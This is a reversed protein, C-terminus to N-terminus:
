KNNDILVKVTVILQGLHRMTHEASHVYLGIVTSALKGRGVDRYHTLISDDTGSLQAVAFEVQRNFNDVLEVTTYIKTTPKGESRLYSLQEENLAEGRAYTFLRDLVGTLHQLHFGPSAMDAVKYWLKDDPFNGMLDNLENRAQLLAHAVPQLLASIDKLPGRLWVEPLTDNAM